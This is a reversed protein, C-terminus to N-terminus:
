PSEADGACRFGVLVHREGIPRKDVFAGRGLGAFENWGSGKVVAEGRDGPTSTWQAVNGAMDLVGYPSAGATYTGVPTTDRPGTVASNLKNAEFANGWPYALGADGRAAKEFEDATPLRRPEGRLVGRWTCYRQANAWSVLVIPHDERGNPPRGDRWVFRAVETAFDQALGQARWAAEDLSPAAVHESAVFEAYQAQTVPMLDIKYAELTVVHRDAEREFWRHTRATDAGSTEAHQDYAAAREEPTSGSIFRGAPIVVMREEAALSMEAHAARAVTAQQAATPAGGCACLAIVLRKV